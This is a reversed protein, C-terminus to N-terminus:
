TASSSNKKESKPFKNVEIVIRCIPQPEFPTWYKGPIIHVVYGKQCKAPLSKYFYSFPEQFQVYVPLHKPNNSTLTDAGFTNVSTLLPPSPGVGLFKTWDVCKRTYFLSTQHTFLMGTSYFLVQPWDKTRCVSSFETLISSVCLSIARFLSPERWRTAQRRFLRFPTTVNLWCGPWSFSLVLSKYYWSKEDNVKKNRDIKKDRNFKKFIVFEHLDVESRHSHLASLLVSSKLLAM